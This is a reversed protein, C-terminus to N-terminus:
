LVPPHDRSIANSTRGGPHARNVTFDANKKDIYIWVGSPGLSRESVPRRRTGYM